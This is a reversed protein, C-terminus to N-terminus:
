DLGAKPRGMPGKISLSYFGEPDKKKGAIFLNLVGFKKIFEPAFKIKGKLDLNSGRINQPNIKISGKINAIIPSKKSGLSLSSFTLNNTGKVQAKINLTELSLYPVLFNMINQPPISLDKSTVSLKGGTLNNKTLILDTNVKMKGFLKVKDGTLYTVIDGDIVSNKIELGMKPYSITPYINLNTKNKKIGMHLKIGPPNLDPAQLALSLSDLQMFSNSSQGYCRGSLVPGQFKAWQLFQGLDLREFTMPCAKSTALKATAFGVITKRIPFSVLFGIVLLLFGLAIFKWNFPNVSSYIEDGLVNDISQKKIM